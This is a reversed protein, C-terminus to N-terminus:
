VKKSIRHCANFGKSSRGFPQGLTPEAAICYVMLVPLLCALCIVYMKDVRSSKNRSARGRTCLRRVSTIGPRHRCLLILTRRSRPRRHARVLATTQTPGLSVITTQPLSLVLGRVTRLVSLDRVPHVDRRVIDTDSSLSSSYNM